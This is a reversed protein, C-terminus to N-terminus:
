YRKFKVSIDDYEAPLVWGSQSNILGTKGDRVVILMKIADDREINVFGPQSPTVVEIPHYSDVIKDFARQGTKYVYFTTDRIIVLACGLNYIFDSPLSSS